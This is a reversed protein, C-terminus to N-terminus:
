RPLGRLFVARLHAAATVGYVRAYYPFAFKDLASVTFFVADVENPAYTSTVARGDRTNITIVIDRINDAAVAERLRPVSDGMSLPGHPWIVWSHREDGTDLPAYFPGFAGYTIGARRAADVAEPRSPFVGRVTHPSQSDAVVFLPMGTRSGDVAEALRKLLSAPVGRVQAAASGASLGALFLFAVVMLAARTRLLRMPTNM